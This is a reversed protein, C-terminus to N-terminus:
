AFIEAAAAFFLSFVASSSHSHFYVGFWGQDVFLEWQADESTAMPVVLQNELGTIKGNTLQRFVGELKEQLVTFRRMMTPWPMPMNGSYLERCLLELERFGRVM